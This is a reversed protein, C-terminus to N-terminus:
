GLDGEAGQESQDVSDSSQLVQDVTLGSGLEQLVGSQIEDKGKFVAEEYLGNVWSLVMIQGLGPDVIWYESIGRAQYQSRKYRYDRDQNEQGPSVVEIVLLPPPMDLTVMTRKAGALAGVGEESLVVLDPIRVSARAGSVVVELGIRLRYFPIGFQALTILLFTAIRQNLDSESPMFVLRGDELEYRADTGDDFELFAELTMARSVVSNGVQLVNVM